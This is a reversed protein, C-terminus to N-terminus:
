ACVKPFLANIAAAKSIADVPTYVGPICAGEENTIILKEAVTKETENEENDDGTQTKESKTTQEYIVSKM